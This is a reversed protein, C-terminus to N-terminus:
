GSRRNRHTLGASPGAPLEADPAEAEADARRAGCAYCVTAARGNHSRCRDCFWPLDPMDRRHGLIRAGFTGAYQRWLEAIEDAYAMLFRRVLAAVVVVLVAFLVVAVVHPASLDIGDGTVLPGM